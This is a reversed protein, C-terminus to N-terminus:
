PCFKGMLIILWAVDPTNVAMADLLNELPKTEMVDYEGSEIHPRLSENLMKLLDAKPPNSYCRLDARVDETKPCYFVGERVGEIWQMSCLASNCSPLVYQSREMGEHLKAKNRVVMSAQTYSIQAVPQMNLKNELKFTIFWDFKYM